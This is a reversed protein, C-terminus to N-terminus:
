FGTMLRASSTSSWRLSEVILTLWEPNRDRRRNGNGAQSHRIVAQERWEPVREPTSPSACRTFWDKATKSTGDLKVTQDEDINAEKKRGGLVAPSCASKSGCSATLSAKRSGGARRDRDGWFAIVHQAQDAARARKAGAM